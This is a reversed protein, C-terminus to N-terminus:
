VMKPGEMDFLILYYHFPDLAILNQKRFASCQSSWRMLCHLTELRHLCICQGMQMQVAEVDLLILQFHLPELDIM